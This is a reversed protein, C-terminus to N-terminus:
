GDPGATIGAPNAVEGEPDTFTTIVGTPTIRGIRTASASFWLNGDPGQTLYSPAQVNPDPFTTIDGGAAGAPPAGPGLALLGAALAVLATVRAVPHRGTM